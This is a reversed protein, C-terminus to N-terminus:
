RSLIGFLQSIASLNQALGNEPLRIPNLCKINIWAFTILFLVKIIVLPFNLVEGQMLTPQITNFARSFDFLCSGGRGAQKKEARQLLYLIADKVGVEPSDALRQPVLSTHSHYSSQSHDIDTKGSSEHLTINPFISIIGWTHSLRHVKDETHLHGRNFHHM